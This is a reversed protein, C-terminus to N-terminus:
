FYRQKSSSHLGVTSLEGLVCLTGPVVEASASLIWTQIIFQIVVEFAHELPFLLLYQPLHSFLNFKRKLEVSHRLYIYSHM